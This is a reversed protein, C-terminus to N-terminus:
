NLFLNVVKIIQEEDIISERDAFKDKEVESPESTNEDLINKLNDPLLYDDKM